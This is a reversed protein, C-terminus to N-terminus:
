LSKLCPSYKAFFRHYSSKKVEHASNELVKQVFGLAMKTWWGLFSFFFLATDFTVTVAIHFIDMEKNLKDTRDSKIIKGVDQWETVRAANHAIKKQKLIKVLDKVNRSVKGYDSIDFFVRKDQFVDIKSEKPVITGNTNIKLQDFNKYKLLHEVVQYVKKYM